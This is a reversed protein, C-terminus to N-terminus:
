ESQVGSIGVGLGNFNCVFHQKCKPVNAGKGVLNIIADDRWQQWTGEENQRVTFVKFLACKLASGSCPAVYHVKEVNGRSDAKEALTPM